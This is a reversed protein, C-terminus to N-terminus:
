RRLHVLHKSLVSLVDKSSQDVSTDPKTQEALLKYGVKAGASQFQLFRKTSREPRLKTYTKM